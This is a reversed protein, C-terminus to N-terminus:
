RGSRLSPNCEDESKVVVLNKEREELKPKSRETSSREASESEQAKAQTQASVPPRKAWGADVKEPQM